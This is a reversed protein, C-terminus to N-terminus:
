RPVLGIIGVVEKVTGAEAMKKLEKYVSAKHYRGEFHDVLEGKKIGSGRATLFEVIAGAIESPRKGSTQKAPAEASVVVCSTIPKGWKGIGM